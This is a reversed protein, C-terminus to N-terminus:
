GNKYVQLTKKAINTWSYAYKLKKVYALIDNLIEHNLLVDEIKKSLSYTDRDFFIEKNNLIGNFAVSAIIPKSYSIALAMPGSSSMVITHPFVVLDAASFYLPVKDEPVYGNFYIQKHTKLSNKIDNYYKLYEEDNKLRPHVGGVFLLIWNKHKDKILKFANILLDIGKYGSIYGFYLIVKKNKLGLIDKANKIKQGNKVGHPIVKIKRQSCKYDEVLVNRFKEEHVLIRSSFFVIQKFILLLGVKLIFRNGEISNEKLFEKNLDSLPIVGHLTIIVTFGFLRLLMVLYPFLMANLIGGYLFVEQQIHIVDPKYKLVSKLISILFLVNSDWCRIVKINKKKNIENEKIKDAFIYVENEEDFAEALYKTYTAVGGSSPYYKTIM